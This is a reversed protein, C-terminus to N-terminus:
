AHARATQQGGSLRGGRATEAGRLVPEGPASWFIRGNRMMRVLDHPGAGSNGVLVLIVYSFPTMKPPSSMLETESTYLETDSNVSM